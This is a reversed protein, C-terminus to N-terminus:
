LTAAGSELESNDPKLISVSISTIKHSYKSTMNIMAYNTVELFKNRVQLQCETPESNSKVKQAFVMQNDVHRFV